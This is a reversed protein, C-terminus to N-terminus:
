NEEEEAVPEEPNIPFLFAAIASVVITIVIIAWGSSLQKLLPIYPFAVSFIIALVVCIANIISRKKM